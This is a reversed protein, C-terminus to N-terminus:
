RRDFLLSSFDAIRTLFNHTWELLPIDYWMDFVRPHFDDMARGWAWVVGGSEPSNVDPFNWPGITLSLDFYTVRSGSLVFPFWIKDGLKPLVREGQPNSSRRYIFRQCTFQISEMQDNELVVIEMRQSVWPLFFPMFRTDASNEQEQLLGLCNKTSRSIRRWSGCFTINERLYEREHSCGRTIGIGSRLLWLHLSPFPLCLDVSHSQRRLKGFRSNHASFM